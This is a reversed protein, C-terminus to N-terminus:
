GRKRGKWSPKEQQWASVTDARREVDKLNQRGFDRPYVARHLGPQGRDDQDGYDEDDLLAEEPAADALLRKKAAETEDINRMKYQLSLPVEQIGTLWSSVDQQKIKQGQLNAPISYLDDDEAREAGDQEPDDSDKRKGLRKRLQEEIYKEMEPDREADDHRQEKVYSEMLDTQPGRAGTQLSEGGNVLRAADLGAKRDRQKHMLKTDELIRRVDIDEGQAQDADKEDEYIKRKRLHREKKQVM